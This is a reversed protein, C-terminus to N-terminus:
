TGEKSQKDADWEIQTWGKARASTEFERVQNGENPKRDAAEGTESTKVGEPCPTTRWHRLDRLLDDFLELESERVEDDTWTEGTLGCGAYKRRRGEIYSIVERMTMADYHEIVQARERCPQEWKGPLPNRSRHAGCARCWETTGTHMNVSTYKHDCPDALSAADEGCRYGMRHAKACQACLPITNFGDGVSEDQKECAQCRRGSEPAFRFFSGHVALREENVRADRAPTVVIDSCHACHDDVEIVRMVRGKYVGGDNNILLDGVRIHHGDATSPRDPKGLPRAEGTRLRRLGVDHRCQDRVTICKMCLTPSGPKAACEDCEFHCGASCLQVRSAEPRRQERTWEYGTSSQHRAHGSPKICVDGDLAVGCTAEATRQRDSM